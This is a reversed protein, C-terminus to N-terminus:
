IHHLSLRYRAFTQHQPCRSPKASPNPLHLGFTNTVHASIESQVGRVDKQGLHKMGDHFMGGVSVINISISKNCLLSSSMALLVTTSNRLHSSVDQKDDLDVDLWNLIFFFNVYKEAITKLTSELTAM